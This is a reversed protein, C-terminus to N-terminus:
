RIIAFYAECTDYLILYTNKLSLFHTSLVKLSMSDPIQWETTFGKVGRFPIHSSSDAFKFTTLSVRASM